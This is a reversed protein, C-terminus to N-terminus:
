MVNGAGPTYSSAVVSNTILTDCQVVGAFTAMGANIEIQGADIEVTSASVKVKAAATVTVGSSELKVANGNSDEIEVSGAGNDLVVTVGHKTRILTREPDNEPPRQKGNWL